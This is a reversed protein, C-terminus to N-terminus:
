SDFGFVLRITAPDGLPAVFTEMFALFDDAAEAYTEQWSVQVYIKPNAPISASGWARRDAYDLTDRNRLEAIKEPHLAIERAKAAGITICARGSVGGCYSKPCGGGREMWSIFDDRRDPRDFQQDDEQRLPIVGRKIVTQSWDYANIESALLWSPTHDWTHHERVFPTADDPMGRPEVIPRFGDGTDCGAFGFGNRVNALIAFADYNRNHYWHMSRGTGMCHECGPGKGDEDPADPACDYCRSEYMCEKPGYWPSIWNDGARPIRPWRALDREPPAVTEWQGSASMKEVYLHIDTGM